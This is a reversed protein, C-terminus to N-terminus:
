TSLQFFKRIIDFTYQYMYKPKRIWPITYLISFDVDLVFDYFVCLKVEDFM